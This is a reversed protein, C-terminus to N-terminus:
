AVPAPNLFTIRHGANNAALGQQLLQCSPCQGCMAAQAEYCSWILHLPADLDLAKAIIQQKNLTELPALVQVPLRTSWALSDNLKERYEVTNDPFGVEAEELNSGFLVTKAGCHEAFGAAINLLIGNRNPVWVRDVGQEQSEPSTWDQLRTPNGQSGNHRYHNPVWDQIWPLPLVTFPLGYHQAVARVAREEQPASRQGYHCWLVAAMSQPGHDAIWQALSVTSDLGGSLLAVALSPSGTPTTM